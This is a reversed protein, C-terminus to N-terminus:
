RLVLLVNWSNIELNVWINWQLKPKQYIVLQLSSFWHYSQNSCKNMFSGPKSRPARWNLTFSACKPKYILNFHKHVEKWVQFAQRCGIIRLLISDSLTSLLWNFLMQDQVLWKYYEDVVINLYRDTIMNMLSLTSIDM